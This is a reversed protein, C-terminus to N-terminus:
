SRRHRLPNRIRLIRVNAAGFRSGAPNRSHVVDHNWLENEACAQCDAGTCRMGLDGRVVLCCIQFKTEELKDHIDDEDDYDSNM